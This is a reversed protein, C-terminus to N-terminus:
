IKADYERVQRRLEFWTDDEFLTLLEEVDEKTLGSGDVTLTRPEEELYCSDPCVYVEKNKLPYHCM